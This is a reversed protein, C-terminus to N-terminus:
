YYVLFIGKLIHWTWHWGGPIPVMWHYQTPFRLKLLVLKIWVQQDGVLFAFTRESNFIYKEGLSDVVAQVDVYSLTERDVVPELITIDSKLVNSTTGRYCEKLPKDKPRKDFKNWVKLAWSLSEDNSSCLWKGFVVRDVDKWLSSASVEVIDPVEVVFQTIINLYSSKHDSRVSEVNLRFNCNDFVM